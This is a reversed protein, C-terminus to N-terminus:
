HLEVHVGLAALGTMVLPASCDFCEVFFGDAGAVVANSHKALMTLDDSTSSAIGLDGIMDDFRATDFRHVDAPLAAEVRAAEDRTVYFALDHWRLAVVGPGVHLRRAGAQTEYCTARTQMCSRTAGPSGVITVRFPLFTGVDIVTVDRVPARDTRNALPPPTPGGCAIAYALPIIALRV